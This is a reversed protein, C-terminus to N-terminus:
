EMEINEKFQVSKFNQENTKLDIKRLGLYDMAETFSNIEEYDVATIVELSLDTTSYFSDTLEETIETPFALIPTSKEMENNDFTRYIWSFTKIPNNTSSRKSLKLLYYDVNPFDAIIEYNENSEAFGIAEWPPTVLNLSNGFKQIYVQNGNNRYQAINKYELFVDIIPIDITNDISLESSESVEYIAHNIDELMDNENEYAYRSFRFSSQDRQPIEQEFFDDMQMFDVEDLTISGNQPEPNFTTYLYNEKNGDFRDGANEVATRLFILEPHTYSIEFIESFTPESTSTFSNPWYNTGRATYKSFENVLDQRIIEIELNNEPTVFNRSQENRIEGLGVKYTSNTLSHFVNQGNTRYESITFFVFEDLIINDTYIKNSGLLPQSTELLNGASDNFFVWTEDINTMEDTGFRFDMLLHRIEIDFVEEFKNGESDEAIITLSTEGVEISYPNFGYTFQKDNTSLVENNNLLLKTQVDSADTISFEIDTKIEIKSNFGLITVEPAMNDIGGSTNDDEIPPEVLDSDSDSSCATLCILTFLLIFKYIKM